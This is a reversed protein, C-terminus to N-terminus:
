IREHKLNLNLSRRTVMIDGSISFGKLQLVKLQVDTAQADKTQALSEEEEKLVKPKAASVPTSVAAVVPETAPIV